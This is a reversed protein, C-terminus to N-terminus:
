QCMCIRGVLGIVALSGVITAAEIIVMLFAVRLFLLNTVTAYWVCLVIILVTRTVLMWGIIKEGYRYKKFIDMLGINGRTQEHGHRWLNYASSVADYGLFGLNLSVLIWIWIWDSPRESLIMGTVGMSCAVIGYVVFAVDFLFYQVTSTSQQRTLHHQQPPINLVVEHPSPHDAPVPYIQPPSLPPTPNPKEKRCQPCKNGSITQQFQEWCPTHYVISHCNCGFISAHSFVKSDDGELCIVCSM